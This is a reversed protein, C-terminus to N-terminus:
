PVIGLRRFRETSKKRLIEVVKEFNEPLFDTCDGGVDEFLKKIIMKGGKVSIRVSDGKKINMKERVEKPITIRFNRTVRTIVM